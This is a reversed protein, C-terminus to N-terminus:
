ESDIFFSIQFDRGMLLVVFSERTAIWQFDIVNLKM